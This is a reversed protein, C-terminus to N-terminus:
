EAEAEADRIMARLGLVSPLGAFLKDNVLLAPTGTIELRQAVALDEAVPGGSASANICAAFSATDSIGAVRGWDGWSRSGILAQSAFLSDHLPEFRGVRDACVAARAATRAFPHIAELPLHRFRISVAPVQSDALASDLVPVLRACFPCQFDSFVTIRVVATPNPRLWAGVSNIAEWDAVKVPETSRVPKSFFERRVLLGGIVLVGVILTIDAVWQLTPRESM